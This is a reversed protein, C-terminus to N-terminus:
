GELTVPRSRPGGNPEWDSENSVRSALFSKQRVLDMITKEMEKSKEGNCGMGGGLIPLVQKRGRLGVVDRDASWWLGLTDLVHLLLLGGLDGGEPGSEGGGAGVSSTPEQPHPPFFFSGM